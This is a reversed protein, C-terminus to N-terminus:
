NGGDVALQARGSVLRSVDLVFDKAVDGVIGGKEDGRSCFSLNTRECSQCFLSAFHLFDLGDFHGSDQTFENGEVLILDEPM